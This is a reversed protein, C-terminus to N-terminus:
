RNRLLIGVFLLGFLLLLGTEMWSPLWEDPRGAEEEAGLLVRVRRLSEAGPARMPRLGERRLGSGEALFFAISRADKPSATSRSVALVLRASPLPGTGPPPDGGELDCLGFPAPPTNSGLRDRIGESHLLPIGADRLLIRRLVGEGLNELVSAYVEVIEPEARPDPLLIRADGGVELGTIPRPPTGAGFLAYSRVRFPLWKRGDRDLARLDGTRSLIKSRPWAVCLDFRSPPPLTGSTRLGIRRLKWPLEPGKRGVGGSWRELAKGLEAFTGPDMRALIVLPRPDGPTVPASVAALGALLLVCTPLLM